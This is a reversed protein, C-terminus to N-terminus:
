KHFCFLFIIWTFGRGERGKETESFPGVHVQMLTISSFLFLISKVLQAQSQAEWEQVPMVLPNNFQVRKSCVHWMLHLELSETSELMYDSCKSGSCWYLFGATAQWQLIFSCLKKYSSFLLLPWLWFKQHFKLALPSEETFEGFVNQLLSTKLYQFSSSKLPENPIEALYFPLMSCSQMWGYWELLFFWVWYNCQDDLNLHLVRNTCYVPSNYGVIIFYHLSPNLWHLTSSVKKCQWVLAIFFFSGPSFLNSSYDFRMSWPVLWNSSPDLFSNGWERGKCLQVCNVLNYNSPLFATLNQM